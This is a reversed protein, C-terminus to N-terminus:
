LSLGEITSTASRFGVLAPLVSGGSDSGSDVADDTSMGNLLANIEEQSLMGDM